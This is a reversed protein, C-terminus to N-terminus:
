IQGLTNLLEFKNIRICILIYIYIYIFIYVCVCVAELAEVDALDDQAQEAVGGQMGALEGAGGGSSAARGPRGDQLAADAAGPTVVRPTSAFDALDINDFSWDKSLSGM